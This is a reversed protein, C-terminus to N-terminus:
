DIGSAILQGILEYGSPNLHVTDSQAYAPDLFDQETNVPLTIDVVGALGSVDFRGSSWWTRMYDRHAPNSANASTGYLANLLVVSESAANMTNVTDQINTTRTALPVGQGQDNSSAHLFVVRPNERTVETVRALIQGSTQSGVGKNVILNNRLNPYPNSYRMWTSDDNGLALGLNPDFLTAGACHSDGIAIINPQCLTLYDFEFWSGTPADTHKNVAIDTHSIFDCAVRAKLKWRGDTERFWCNLQGFKSDYQLAFEIATTNYTLGSAAINATKRTAGQYGVICAAGVAWTAGATQGLWISVEKTGNYISIITADLQSIASARVKGYLIYDRNAPTFTWPKTISCTAGVAGTKTARLYSSAVSLTAGTATWGTTSEGEDNFTSNDDAITPLPMRDNSTTGYLVDFVASTISKLKVTNGPALQLTGGFIPNIQVGIGNLLLRGTNARNAIEIEEGGVFNSAASFEATKTGDAVFRLYKGSDSPTISRSASNVTEVVAVGLLGDFVLAGATVRYRKKESEVHVVQGDPLTAAAASAAAYDAYSLIADKVFSAKLGVEQLAGEVNSSTYFNGVDTIPTQEASTPKALVKWGDSYAGHFEDTELNFRVRGPTSAGQQSTSGSPLRISGTSTWSSDTNLLAVNSGANISINGAVGDENTVVINNATGTVSRSVLTDAATRVVFGNTTPAIATAITGLGLNTRADVATNAGTGGGAVTIVGSSSTSPNLKKWSAQVTPLVNTSDLVSIYLNTQYTVVSKGAIYEQSADWEPVGKQLLYLLTTDQRNQLFNEWQYPMMEQVWGSQVKIETPSLKEGSSAWAEGYAPRVIDVM